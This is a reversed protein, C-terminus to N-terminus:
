REEELSQNLKTIRDGFYKNWEKVKIVPEGYGMTYYYKSATKKSKELEAVGAEVEARKLRDQFLALIQNGTKEFEETPMVYKPNDSLVVASLRGLEIFVAERLEEGQNPNTM